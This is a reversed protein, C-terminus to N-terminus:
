PRRHKQHNLYTNWHIQEIKRPTRTMRTTSYKRVPLPTGAVCTFRYESPKETAASNHNTDAETEGGKRKTRQINPKIISIEVGIINVRLIDIFNEGAQVSQIM